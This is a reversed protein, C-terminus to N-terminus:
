RPIRTDSQRIVEPSINNQSSAAPETALSIWQLVGLKPVLRLAKQGDSLFLNGFSQNDGMGDCWSVFGKGYSRGPYKNAFNKLYYEVPRNQGLKCDILYQAIAMTLVSDDTFKSGPAYIKFDTKTVRNSPPHEYYSGAIDGNGGRV